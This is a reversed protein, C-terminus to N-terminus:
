MRDGGDATPHDRESRQLLDIVRALKSGARPTLTKEREGLILYPGPASTADPDPQQLPRATKSTAIAEEAGEDVAITKLGAPTLKLAYSQGSDDRFWVPM